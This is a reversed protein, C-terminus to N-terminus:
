AIVYPEVGPLVKGEFFELSAGGGTSVHSVKDEFGLQTVAAASDGGGVVTLAGKATIEALEEAIAKTGGAFPPLEFVGMPGNWLVTKASALAARFVECTKPGIDLGLKDKPIADVSVVEFPAEASVEPAVLVDQPLLIKVGKAEARKLMSVAFDLKEEECLSKGIERGQAKLFTFAMGGGILIAEVTELMNDIVGIKDSVKAGGLILVYPKKPNDRAASLAEIERILLPGAFSPLFDVVARTSAHARHAASFADMVFVEFPAALQKAFEADNKEEEPHFRLNELVVVDGASLGDVAAEVPAGVCDSVFRAKCGSLKSLEEVVPALSYKPVPAGKPRGLHSCLAIKAGAERLSRILPLHARIRTDDSVKGDATLPVNFDVRVLVKKGAVDKPTFTKLKM